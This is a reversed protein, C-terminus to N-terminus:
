YRISVLLWKLPCFPEYFAHRPLNDVLGELEVECYQYKDVPPTRRHPRSSAGCKGCRTVLQAVRAHRGVCMRWKEKQWVRKMIGRFRRSYVADNVLSPLSPIQLTHKRKVFNKETQYHSPMPAFLGECHLLNRVYRADKSDIRTEFASPTDHFYLFILPQLRLHKLCSDIM